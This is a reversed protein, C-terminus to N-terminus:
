EISSLAKDENEISNIGTEERTLEGSFRQFNSFTKRVLSLNSNFNQLDIQINHM